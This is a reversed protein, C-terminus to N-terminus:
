RRPDPEVAASGPALPIVLTFTAGAGPRSDLEIRGGHAEAVGRVIALGLGAGSYRGGAADGRAFREFIRAREAAPVGPGGDRVWIRAEDGRFGSGIAVSAGHGTHQAANRALNLVAQCLLDPNARLSGEGIAELRWARPALAVAREFAARTWDGLELPRAGLDPHHLAGLVELDDVLRSMRDIEAIAVRTPGVPEELGDRIAMLQCRCVTLPARLEHAAERGDTCIAAVTEELRDVMANFSRGMEAVEDHGSVPLRPGLDSRSIAHATRTLRRMPALLRGALLFAVLSGLVVMALTVAMGTTRLESIERLEGAPLSVVVLAGAGGLADRVPRVRYSADGLPTPFRGVAGAPGAGGRAWDRLQAEPLRRLPFRELATQRVSGGAVAVLAEESSPVNRALYSALHPAAEAGRPLRRAVAGTAATFRDFEHVEQELGDAVRDELRLELLESVLVTSGLGCLALLLVTSAVIRARLGRLRLLRPEADPPAVFPLAPWRAPRASYADISGRADTASM